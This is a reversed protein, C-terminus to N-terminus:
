AGGNSKDLPQSHLAGWLGAACLYQELNAALEDVAANPQDSSLLALAEEYSTTAALKNVLAQGLAASMDTINQTYAETGTASDIGREANAINNRETTVPNNSAALAAYRANLAATPATPATDTNAASVSLISEDAGAMPINLKGHIWEAGIRM